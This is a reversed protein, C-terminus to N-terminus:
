HGAQRWTPLHEEAMQMHPWRPVGTPTSEDEEVSIHQGENCCLERLFWALSSLCLNRRGQPRM